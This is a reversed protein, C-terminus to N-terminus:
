SPGGVIGFVRVVSMEQGTESRWESISGQDMGSHGDLALRALATSRVRSSCDSVAGLPILSAVVSLLSSLGVGQAM